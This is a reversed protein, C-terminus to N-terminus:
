DNFYTEGSLELIEKDLEKLKKLLLAREELKDLITDENREQMKSKLRAKLKEDLILGGNKTIEKTKPTQEVVKDKNESEM